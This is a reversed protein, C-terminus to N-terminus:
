SFISWLFYEETHCLNPRMRLIKIHFVRSHLRHNNYGLKAVHETSKHIADYNSSEGLVRCFEGFEQTESSASGLRCSERASNPWTKSLVRGLRAGLRGLRLSSSVLGLSLSKQCRFMISMTASIEFKSLKLIM